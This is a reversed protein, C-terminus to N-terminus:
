ACYSAQQVVRFEGRLALHHEAKHTHSYLLLMARYEDLQEPVRLVQGVHCAFSRWPAICSWGSDVGTAEFFTASALEGLNVSTRHHSDSSL